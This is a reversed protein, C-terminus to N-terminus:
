NRARLKVAVIHDKQVVCDFFDESFLSTVRVTKTFASGYDVGDEIKGGFSCGNSLYVTAEKGKLRNLIENMGLKSTDEMTM